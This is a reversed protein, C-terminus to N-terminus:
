ETGDQPQEVLRYLDQDSLHINQTIRHWVELRGIAIGTAIPDVVGSVPSVMAPTATARCFHRLDALVIDTAPQGLRFLERYAGRRRMVAKRIKEFM